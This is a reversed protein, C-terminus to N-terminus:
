RAFVKHENCVVRQMWAKLAPTWAGAERRTDENAHSQTGLPIVSASEGRWVGYWLHHKHAHTVEGTQLYLTAHQVYVGIHMYNDAVRRAYDM